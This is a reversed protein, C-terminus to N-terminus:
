DKLNIVLNDPLRLKEICEPMDGDFLADLTSLLYRRMRHGAPIIMESDLAEHLLQYLENNSLNSPDKRFLRPFARRQGPDTNPNDMVLRFKEYGKSLESYLKRRVPHVSDKLPDYSSKNAYLRCILDSTDTIALKYQDDLITWMYVLHHRQRNKTLVGHYLEVFLRSLWYIGAESSRAKGLTFTMTNWLTMFWKSGASMDVYDNIRRRAMDCLLKHGPAPLLRAMMPLEEGHKMWRGSHPHIFRHEAVQEDAVHNPAMLFDCFLTLDMRMKSRLEIAQDRTWLFVPPRVKQKSGKKVVGVEMTDDFNPDLFVDLHLGKWNPDVETNVNFNLHVALRPYQLHYHILLAFTNTFSRLILCFYSYLVNITMNYLYLKLEDSNLINLLVIADVIFGSKFNLFLRKFKGVKRGIYVGKVCFVNRHIIWKLAQLGHWSIVTPSHIQLRNNLIGNIVVLKWRQRWKQYITVHRFEIALIISILHHIILITEITRVDNVYKGDEGMKFLGSYADIVTKLTITNSNAEDSDSLSGEDDGDAGGNSSNEGSSEANITSSNDSGDEVITESVVSLQVFPNSHLKAEAYRKGVQRVLYVQVKAIRDGGLLNHRLSSFVLSTSHIPSPPSDLLPSKSKLLPETKIVQQIPGLSPTVINEDIIKGRDKIANIVANLYVKKQLRNKVSKPKTTNPWVAPPENEGFSYAPISKYKYAKVFMLNRTLFPKFVPRRGEDSTGMAKYIRLTAAMPSIMRRNRVTVVLYRNRIGVNLGCLFIENHILIYNRVLHCTKTSSSRNLSPGNTLRIKKLPIRTSSRITRELPSRLGM